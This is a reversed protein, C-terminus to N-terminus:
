AGPSGDRRSGRRSGVVTFGVFLAILTYAIFAGADHPIDALISRLTLDLLALAFM